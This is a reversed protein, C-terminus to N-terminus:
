QLINTVLNLTNKSLSCIILFLENLINYLTIFKANGAFNREYDNIKELLKVNKLHYLASFNNVTCNELTYLLICTRKSIIYKMAPQNQPYKYQM